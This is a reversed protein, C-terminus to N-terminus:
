AAFTVLHAPADFEVRGGDVTFKGLYDPAARQLREYGEDDIVDALTWGKIDTYLWAEISEFRAKGPRTHVAVEKAGANGFLAELTQVDGLCYPAEISRAVEPGFLDNLMRAVALYGPTDSLGAWVAVCGTGGPKMVRVMESVAKGRDQFFMLGFQSVVHDFENQDFPLSEAAGERWVVTSSKSRAVSLMGDNIDLGVVSGEPGVLATAERAVIGTGCAVDLVSQGEEVRALELLQRPWAGFLAPIFFQEYVEAATAVVQGQGHEDMDSGM